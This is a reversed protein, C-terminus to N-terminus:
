KLLDQLANSTHSIMRNSAVKECIAATNALTDSVLKLQHIDITQSASDLIDSLCALIKRNTAEISEFDEISKPNPNLSNLLGAAYVFEQNDNVM